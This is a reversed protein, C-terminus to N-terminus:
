QIYQNNKVARVMGQDAMFLLTRNCMITFTSIRLGSNHYLCLHCVSTWGMLRCPCAVAHRMGAVQMTHCIGQVWVYILTCCLFAQIQGCPRAAPPALDM